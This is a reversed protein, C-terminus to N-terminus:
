ITQGEGFTKVKSFLMLVLLFIKGLKEVWQTVIIIVSVHRPNQQAM